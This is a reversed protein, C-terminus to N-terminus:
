IAFDLGSRLGEVTRRLGDDLSVRPTWKFVARIRSTDLVSVPVDFSRAPQYQVQAVIGCVDQARELLENLSTGSGSGVNFIRESSKGLAVKCIAESVDDIYIFDRVIEGDGWIVVPQHNLVRHLFIPIAGQARQPSQGPGYPNSLRIIRYDLDRLHLYLHLYKEIAVKSVGYAGIPDLAHSESIPTIKPVGYVTGGSSLFIVRKVGSWACAELLGVSGGINTELDYVVDRNASAPLTTAALHFCLDAGALSSRLAEQDLFSGAIYEVGDIRAEVAPLTLDFVSVKLMRARLARVLNQGIFGCGGVVVAHM